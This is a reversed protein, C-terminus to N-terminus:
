RELISQVHEKEITSSGANFGKFLASTALSNINRLIGGSAQHILNLAGKTFLNVQGGEAKIREEIYTFAEEKPLAGTVSTITISNALSELISLGFKQLLSEQGCLLVTLANVSDIEFNTLLRLEKLIDHNLLHAEDIILIPHIRDTQNYALVREKIARFISSKRMKTTLGMESAIHSYFELLGVSSHCIYFVKFLGPNLSGKLRRILCSKGTGSKGTLIGIGKTETLIQLQMWNKEMSPLQMLKETDIEKTFPNTSLNYYSTVAKMNM